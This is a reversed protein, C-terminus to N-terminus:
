ATSLSSQADPSAALAMPEPQAAMIKSLAFVCDYAFGDPPYAAEVKGGFRNTAEVLIAHGFGKRTPPAVAPGGWEKWMFRFQAGEARGEIAVGGHQSSLAGHKIANTALEHLILAFNQAAPTNVVMACGKVSIQQSFSGLEQMIIEDLSAGRWASDALMAHARGLAALRQTFAKKAESITQGEVLSRSAIAQIVAFLNQSRHQMEQMLLQQRESHRIISGILGSVLAVNIIMVLMFMILTWAEKPELTFTFAPPLFLFWGTLVSVLVAVIGPWFGCALATIIIAINYTTFPGADTLQGRVILRLLTAVAVLALAIVYRQFRHQRLRRIRELLGHNDFARAFLM